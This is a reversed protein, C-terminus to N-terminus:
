SAPDWAINLELDATVSAAAASDSNTMVCLASTPYVRPMGVMEISHHYPRGIIGGTGEDPGQCSAHWLPRAVIVNFGGATMATTGNTVTISNVQQVGTDGAPLPFQYCLGLVLSAAALPGITATRGSVGSQNTYSVAVTWNNGSAFATSVELWLQLGNYAASPVRSAYSPQATLTTTAATYAIEGVGFLMDYLLLRCVGRDPVFGVGVLYAESATFDIAPFTATADTPVIGSSTNGLALTGPPIAQGGSVSRLTQWVLSRVLASQICPRSYLVTEKGAAALDALTAISM